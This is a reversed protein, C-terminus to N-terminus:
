KKASNNPPKPPNVPAPAVYVVEGPRTYHLGERAEKEIARPDSKLGKIQGNYRDNEQQLSNIQKQLDDIEARKQKYIVMGNAGFVIHLFLWVTVVLVGGTAIRRRLTYLVTWAPHFRQLLRACATELQPAREILKRLGDEARLLGRIKALKELRFDM